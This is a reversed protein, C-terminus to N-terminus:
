LFDQVCNRDLVRARGGPEGTISQVPTPLSDLLRLESGPTARRGGVGSEEVLVLLPSWVM